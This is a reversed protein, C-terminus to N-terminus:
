GFVVAGVAVMVLCLAILWAENPVLPRGPDKKKKKMLKGARPDDGPPMAPPKARGAVVTEPYPVRTEVQRDSLALETSGDGGAVRVDYLLAEVDDVTWPALRGHDGRPAEFRLAAHDAKLESVREVAKRESEARAKEAALERGTRVSRERERDVEGRFAKEVAALEAERSQEYAELARLVENCAFRVTRQYEARGSYQEALREVERRAQDAREEPNV